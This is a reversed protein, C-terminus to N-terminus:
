KYKVFLDLLIAGVSNGFTVILLSVFSNLTWFGGAAMYFMNAVCHQFGALVFFAIPVVIGAVKGFQTDCKGFFYVALYVLAGCLVSKWFMNFIDLFEFAIDRDANEDNFNLSVIFKENEAKQNM